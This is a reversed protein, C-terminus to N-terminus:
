AIASIPDSHESNGPEMRMSAAKEPSEPWWEEDWDDFFSDNVGELYERFAENRAQIMRFSRFRGLEECSSPPCDEDYVIPRSCAEHLKISEEETLNGERRLAKTVIM